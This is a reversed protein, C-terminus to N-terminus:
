KKDGSLKRAEQEVFKKVDASEGAAAEVAKGAYEKAQATDDAAAHAHALNVLATANQGGALRVQAEAAKVAVALLEKSEKGDGLRLISSVM